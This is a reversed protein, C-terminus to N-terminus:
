REMIDLLDNYRNYLIDGDERLANNIERIERMNELISFFDHKVTNLDYGGDSIVQVLRDVTEIVANIKPCSYPISM